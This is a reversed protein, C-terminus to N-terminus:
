EVPRAKGKSLSDEIIGKLTRDAEAAIKGQEAGLRGQEAGLKGQQEGLKGQLAGFEGQKAGIEGQLAGLRSEVEGMKNAIESLEEQSITSGKKAELKALAANLEAMQKSFDPTPVSAQEQKRGLEEQQRGLAEQEKGLKEQQVGLAEIPKYLAEIRDIVAPDDIFYSKGDRTFWLFKGSTLKRVKDIAGKSYNNWNGSFTFHQSPDTVLAWSEGNSSTSYSYGPHKSTAHAAKEDDTDASSASSDQQIVPTARDDADDHIEGYAPPAPPAPPVPVAGQPIVISEPINPPPAAPDMPAPPMAPAAPAIQDPVVSPVSPQDPIVQVSNPASPASPAAPTQVAQAGGAAEVRILATGAFLAVPVLMAVLLARRRSGAFAQRFISDNLLREIRHSLNSTRAMAVGTLTPRPMAAFELLIQAYSARSAAQELGARDSIAEGLDSLRRKLWWGLPSFWFLAAYLAALMQLYFDGQRIHSREHALVIRLKEPDWEAYDAPLVVGSGITVPSFVAASSRLRLDPAIEIDRQLRVPEAQAWLKIAAVLGCILRLLLVGCVVFYFLVALTPITILRSRAPLQIPTESTATPNPQAQDSSNFESKSIAPAPFRDGRSLQPEPEVSFQKAAPPATPLVSTSAALGHRSSVPAAPRLPTTVRIQAYSPLWQWRMLLPMAVAAALVLGWAAKQMVVARVHLIRLGAWVMLAVVLARLAAEVLVPIM